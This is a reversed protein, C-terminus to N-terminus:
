ADELPLPRAAGAGGARRVSITHGTAAAREVDRLRDVARRVRRHAARVQAADDAEEAGIACPQAADECQDEERRRDTDIGAKRSSRIKSSASGSRSRDSSFTSTAPIIAIAIRVPTRPTMWVSSEFWTPWRTM